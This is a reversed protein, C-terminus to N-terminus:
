RTANRGLCLIPLRGPQQPVLQGDQLSSTVWTRLLDVYHPASVKIPKKGEQAWFFEYNAGATMSPCTSPSCSDSITAYLAMIQQFFELLNITIWDLESEGSPLQIVKRLNDVTLMKSAKKGIDTTTGADLLPSSNASSLQDADLQQQHQVIWDPSQVSRRSQTWGHLQLNAQHRKNQIISWGHTMRPDTGLAAAEFEKVILLSPYQYTLQYHSLAFTRTVASRNRLSLENDKSFDDM